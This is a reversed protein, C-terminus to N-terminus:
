TECWMQWESVRIWYAINAKGRCKKQYIHVLKNLREKMIRYACSFLILADIATRCRRTSHWACSVHLHGLPSCVFGVAIRLNIDSSLYHVCNNKESYNFFSNVVRVIDYSCKCTKTVVHYRRFTVFVKTQSILHVRIVNSTVKRLAKAVVPSSNM